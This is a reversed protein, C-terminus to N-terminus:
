NKGLVPSSFTCSEQMLIKGYIEPFDYIDRHGHIFWLLMLEDFQRKVWTIFLDMTVNIERLKHLIIM